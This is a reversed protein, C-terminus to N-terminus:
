VSVPHRMRVAVHVDQDHHRRSILDVMWMAIASNTLALLEFSWNSLPFVSTWARAIWGMLPPHKAYGWEVSRGMTWTELVDPHLNGGVYAVSFYILWVAVFGVLLCPIVWGAEAQADALWGLFARRWRAPCTEVYATTVPYTRYALSM